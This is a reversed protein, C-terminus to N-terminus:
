IRKDWSVTEFGAWPRYDSGTLRYSSGTDSKGRLQINGNLDLRRLAFSLSQSLENNNLRRWVNDNLNKEVQNRYEGFDLIPLKESLSVLFDKAPLEKNNGFIQKLQFKIATTPDIKFSSSEGTALGFYRMWFRLSGWRFDNQIIPAPKLSQKASLSGVEAWTTPFTYIDQSLLWSAARIFDATLGQNNSDDWIPTANKPLCVFELAIQPLEYTYLEIDSKKVKEFRANLQVNDGSREFLGLKIWNNLSGRLRTKVTDDNEGMIKPLCLSLLDEYAINKFYAVTRFLVILEPHLGDNANNLLTM